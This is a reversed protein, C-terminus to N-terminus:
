KRVEFDVTQTEELKGNIEELYVTAEYIGAPTAKPIKYAIYIGGESERFQAEAISREGNAFPFKARAKIRSSAATIKIKVTDGPSYLVSDTVISRVLSPKRRLPKPAERNQPFEDGKPVLM